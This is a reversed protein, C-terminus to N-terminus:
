RGEASRAEAVLTRRLVKGVMTKPLETRFEIHSPAKYPALRERCFSRLEEPSPARAPDAPAVIAHVREGWEDDPLGVVVADAVGAHETLAGEVEAPYVTAGGTKHLTGSNTLSATAAGNIQSDNTISFAAGSEVNLNSTDNITLFNTNNADYNFAGAVTLTHDGSLTTPTVNGILGGFARTTGSNQLTGGTWNLTSVQFTTSPAVDVAGSMVELTTSLLTNVNVQLTGGNVRFMGAGGMCRRPDDSYKMGSRFFGDDRPILRFRM